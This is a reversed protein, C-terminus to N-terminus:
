AWHTNELKKRLQEANKFKEAIRSRQMGLCISKIQEPQRSYHQQGGTANYLIKVLNFIDSEINRRNSDPVQFLDLLKLDFGIGFRRVIINEAVIHGHYERLAHMPELNKTLAHILHLGEFASLRKGPQRGLFDCLLEGEVYESILFTVPQSSLQITEQTYYQTIAPCARLRHLKKAHWSGLRNRTNRDPFFFKAVREIGTEIERVLYSEGEWNSALHTEVEYKGSLLTGPEFDFTEVFQISRSAM